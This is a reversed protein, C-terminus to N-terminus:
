IGRHETDTTRIRFSRPCVGAAQQITWTHVWDALKRPEALEPSRTDSNRQDYSTHVKLFQEPGNPRNASRPVPEAASAPDFTHLIRDLVVLPTVTKAVFSRVPENANETSSGGLIGMLLRGNGLHSRQFVDFAQQDNACIREVCDRAADRELANSLLSTLDETDLTSTRQTRNHLWPGLVLSLVTPSPM